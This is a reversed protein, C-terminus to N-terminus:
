KIIIRIEISDFVIAIEVTVVIRQQIHDFITAGVRGVVSLSMFSTVLTFWGLLQTEFIGTCNERDKRRIKPESHHRTWGDSAGQRENQKEHQQTMKKMM